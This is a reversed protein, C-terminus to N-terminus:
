GKNGRGSRLAKMSSHLSSPLCIISLILVVTIRLDLRGRGRGGKEEQWKNNSVPNQETAQATRLGTSDWKAKLEPTVCLHVASQGPLNQKQLFIMVWKFVNSSSLMLILNVIKCSKSILFLLMRAPWGLPCISFMWTSHLGGRGSTLSGRGCLKKLCSM